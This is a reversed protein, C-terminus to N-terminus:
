RSAWTLGRLGIFTSMSFIFQLSVTSGTAVLLTGYQYVEGTSTEVTKKEVDAKVIETELHLDIGIEIVVSVDILSSIFEKIVFM